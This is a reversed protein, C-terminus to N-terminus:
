TTSWCSSRAASHAPRARPPSRAGCTGTGGAPRCVRRRRRHGPRARLACAVPLGLAAGSRGGPQLGRERRRSPHLPVPVAADAGALSTARRADRMLAALPRALSRRGEYKLAHVIPASRATTRAPRGRAISPAAAAVAARAARRAAPQRHAVHAAPRRVRRLAAAHASPDVALVRRCVAGRTPRDLLQACAACAPAFLVSAARRRADHSDRRACTAALGSRRGITVYTALPVREANGWLRELGYFLRTEPAFVHVIFDFYDLLIWESRDYGEVHAPKAGEAALADM